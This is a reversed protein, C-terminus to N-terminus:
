AHRRREYAARVDRARNSWLWIIVSCGRYDPFSLLTTEGHGNKIVTSASLDRTKAQVHFRAGKLLSMTGAHQRSRLARNHRVAQRPPSGTRQALWLISIDLM